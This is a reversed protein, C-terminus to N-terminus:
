RLGLERKFFEAIETFAAEAEPYDNSPLIQFGHWMAHHVRLDSKVGSRVLKQHIRSCDGLLLDRTGTQIITPPFKSDYTGFLPSLLPHRKDAKGAYANQYTNMLAPNLVPDWGKLTTITDSTLAFDVCPSLCAFAAPMPLEDERCTLLLSLSLSAGASAGLIGLNDPAVEEAIGKYATVCDNLAVPFVHEPVLRYDVSYVRLGTLNAVPASVCRTSEPSMKCFGGGHIHMIAKNANERSLTRPSYKYVKVVHGRGNPFSLLEPEGVYKYPGNEYIRNGFDDTNKRDELWEQPTKPVGETLPISKDLFEQAEKSISPPIYDSPNPRSREECLSCVPLSCLLTFLAFRHM